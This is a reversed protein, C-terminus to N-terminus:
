SIQIFCIIFHYFFYKLFDNDYIIFTYIIFSSINIMFLLFVLYFFFYVFWRYDVLNKWIKDDNSDSKGYDDDSEEEDHDDGGNENM